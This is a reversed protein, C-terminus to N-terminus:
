AHPQPQESSLRAASSSSEGLAHLRFRASALITQITGSLRELELAPLLISDTSTITSCTSRKLGSNSHFASRSSSTRALESTGTTSEPDVSFTVAAIASSDQWLSVSLLGM